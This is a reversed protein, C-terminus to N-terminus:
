AQFHPEVLSPMVHQIAGDKGAADMAQFVLLVACRDQGMSLNAPEDRLNWRSNVVLGHSSRADAIFLGGSRTVPHEISPVPHPM